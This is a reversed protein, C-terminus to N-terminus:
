LIETRRVGGKRCGRGKSDQETTRLSLGSCVPQFTHSSISSYLTSAVVLRSLRSSLSLSVLQSLQARTRCPSVQSYLFICSMDGGPVRTIFLCSFNNPSIVMYITRWCRTHYCPVYLFIHLHISLFYSSRTACVWLWSYSPLCVSVSNFRMGGKNRNRPFFFTRYHLPTVIPHTVPRTTSTIM